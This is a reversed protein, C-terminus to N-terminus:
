SAPHVAQGDPKAPANARAALAEEIENAIAEGLNGQEQLFGPSNHHGTPLGVFKVNPLDRFLRAQRADPRCYTGYFITTRPPNAANRFTDLVNWCNEKGVTKHFRGLMFRAALAIAAVECYAKFRLILNKLDLFARLHARWSIYEEVMVSPSFAIVQDLGCRGAFYMAAAGGASAGLAVNHESGLQAILGRIKADYYDLGMRSRDPAVHYQMRFLDRIFVFNCAASSKPLITRFEYSPMGLYLVALGSFCFVTVDAGRDVLRVFDSEKVAKSLDWYLRFAGEQDMREAIKPSVLRTAWRFLTTRKM